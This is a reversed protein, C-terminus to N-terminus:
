KALSDFDTQIAKLATDLKKRAAKVLKARKDFNPNVKTIAIASVQAHMTECETLIGAAKRSDKLLETDFEKQKKVLKECLEAVKEWHKHNIVFLANVETIDKSWIDDLTSIQTRISKLGKIYDNNDNWIAQLGPTRKAYDTVTMKPLEGGYKLCAMTKSDVKGSATVKAKKQFTKLAADTLPGFIGDLVLKPRAGGKNLLTQIETVKKGTAGQKIVAM